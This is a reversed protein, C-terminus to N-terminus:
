RRVLIGYQTRTRLSAKGCRPCRALARQADLHAILGENTAKPDMKYCIAFDELEQKNKFM